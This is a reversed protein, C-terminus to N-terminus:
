KPFKEYDSHQSLGSNFTVSTKKDDLGQARLHEKYDKHFKFYIFGEEDCYYAPFNEADKLTRYQKGSANVVIKSKKTWRPGALKKLGYKEDLMKGTLRERTPAAPAGETSVNTIATWNMGNQITEEINLEEPECLVKFLSLLKSLKQVQRRRNPAVYCVRYLVKQWEKNFEADESTMQSYGEDFGAMFKEQGQTVELAEKAETWKEFNPNKELMEYIRPACIQLTLLGIFVQKEGPSEPSAADEEGRTKDLMKILAISNVLRKISRPNNGISLGLIESLYELGDEKHDDEKDLFGIQSLLKELYSGSTYRAIPMMFPLQIIKDFFARFEWENEERRKGYKKELGKVVVNYDIALVFVCKPLNFINKMLELVRVANAPEIRDLDDVFVIIRETDVRESILKELEGRLAKITAEGEGLWEDVEDAGRNGAAMGLSLRAASKALKKTFKKVKELSDDKGNEGIKKTIEGIIGILSEEPTALLSHEWSNVWIPLNKKEDQLAFWISHLLSTKGSGWEGQIGITIPTDSNRIFEALAKAYGDVNLLDEQDGGEKRQDRPEDIVGRAPITGEDTM